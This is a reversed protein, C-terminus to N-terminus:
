VLAKVKKAMTVNHKARLVSVYGNGKRIAVRVRKRTFGIVQGIAPHQDVLLMVLDM